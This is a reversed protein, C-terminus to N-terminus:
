GTPDRGPVRAHGIASWGTVQEETVVPQPHALPELPVWRRLQVADELPDGALFTATRQEVVLLRPGAFPGGFQPDYTIGADTGAAPPAIRWGQVTAPM